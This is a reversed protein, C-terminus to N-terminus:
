VLIFRQEAFSAKGINREEIGTEAEAAPDGHRSLRRLGPSLDMRPELHLRIAGIFRVLSLQVSTWTLSCEFLNDATPHLAWVTKSPMGPCAETVNMM